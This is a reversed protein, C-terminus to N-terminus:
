RIKSARTSSFASKPCAAFRCKKESARACSRRPATSDPKCPAARMETDGLATYYIRAFSLDHTVEVRTITANQLSPDAIDERLAKSVAMRIAEAARDARFTTAM